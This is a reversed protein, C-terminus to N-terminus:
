ALMPGCVVRLGASERWCGWWFAHKEHPRTVPLIYLKPLTTLTGKLFFDMGNMMEKINFHDRELSENWNKFIFKNM